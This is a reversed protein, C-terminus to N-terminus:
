VTLYKMNRCVNREVNQSYWKEILSVEHVCLKLNENMAMQPKNTISYDFKLSPLLLFGLAM